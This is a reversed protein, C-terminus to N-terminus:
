QANARRRYAGACRSRWYMDDVRSQNVGIKEIAHLFKGGGVYVGAHTVFSPHASDLRFVLVDFDKLESLAVRVWKSKSEMAIMGDIMASETASILYDEIPNGRLAYVFSVLGWCDLGDNPNRGGDKFPVGILASCTTDLSM